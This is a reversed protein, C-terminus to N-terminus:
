QLPLVHPSPVSMPGYLDRRDFKPQRRLCRCVATEMARAVKVSLSVNEPPSGGEDSLEHVGSRPFTCERRDRKLAKRAASGENHLFCTYTFSQCESLPFATLMRTHCWSIYSWHAAGCRMHGGWSLQQQRSQSLIFCPRASWCARQTPVLVCELVIRKVLTMAKSRQHGAEDMPVEGNRAKWALRIARAQEVTHNVGDCVTVIEFANRSWQAVHAHYALKWSCGWCPWGAM